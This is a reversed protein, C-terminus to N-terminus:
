TCKEKRLVSAKRQGNLQRTSGSGFCISKTLRLSLWGETPQKTKPLSMALEAIDGMGQGIADWTPGSAGITPAAEALAVMNGSQLPAAGNPGATNSLDPACGWEANCTPTGIPKNNSAADAGARPPTSTAAQSGRSSTSQSKSSPTSRQRIFPHEGTTPAGHTRGAHESRQARPPGELGHERPWLRAGRPRPDRACHAVVFAHQDQQSIVDATELQQTPFRLEAACSDVLSRRAAAVGRARRPASSRPFARCGRRAGRHAASTTAGRADRIERPSPQARGWASRSSDAHTVDNRGSLTGSEQCSTSAPM